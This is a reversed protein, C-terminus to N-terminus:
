AITTHVFACSVIVSCADGLLTRFLECLIDHHMTQFSSSVVKKCIQKSWYIMEESSHGGGLVHLAYASCFSTLVSCLQRHHKPTDGSSNIYHLNEVPLIQYEQNMKVMM